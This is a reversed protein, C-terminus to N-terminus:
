LNSMTYYRDTDSSPVAVVPSSFPMIQVNDRDWREATPLVLEQLLFFCTTLENCKSRDTRIVGSDVSAM